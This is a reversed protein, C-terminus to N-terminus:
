RLHLEFKKEQEFNMCKYIAMDNSSSVHGVQSSTNEIAVHRNSM